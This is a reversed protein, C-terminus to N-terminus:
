TAAPDLPRAALVAVDDQDDRHAMAVLVADLLRDLPEGAVRAAERRLVELREGVRHGRLEILGDTFMLLTSGSPVRDVWTHRQASGDVGLLLDSRGTLQATRGDPHVLLPAYHGASSWTLRAGTSDDPDTAELRAVLATAVTGSGLALNARDLRGLLESPSDDRDIAFGRLISRLQGMEAAAAVDHGAVDGIVLTTSRPFALADYWDGGVKDSASAPNYRAALELGPVVPLTSLLADQLTHAVERRQQILAARQMAQSTTRALTSLLERVDDDMRRPARWGLGLWGLPRGSASLPLFARSGGAAWTPDDRLHPFDALFATQDTYVLARGSRMARPGPLDAGPDVALWCTTAASSLDPLRARRVARLDGAALEGDAAGLASHALARVAALVENETTTHVMAESFRLLLRSQRTARIAAHTAEQLGSVIQRRVLSWSCAAAIESLTTLDGASFERPEHEIACLAGVVRGRADVLPIGAFAGVRLDGDATDAPARGGARADPVVLPRGTSVVQHGFAPAGQAARTTALPEILGAAGPFVQRDGDDLSVLAISVHLLQRAMAAFGDLEEDPAAPLLDGAPQAPSLAVGDLQASAFGDPPTAFGDLPVMAFGDLPEMAFGDLPVDAFGDPTVGASGPLAAKGTDDGM